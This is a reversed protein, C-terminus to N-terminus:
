PPLRSGANTSMKFIIKVTNLSVATDVGPRFIKPFSCYKYIEPDRCTVPSLIRLTEDIETVKPQTQPMTTQM